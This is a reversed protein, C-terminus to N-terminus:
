HRLRSLEYKIRSRHENSVIPLYLLGVMALVIILGKIIMAKGDSMEINGLLLSLVSFYSIMTILRRWPIHMKFFKQSFYYILLFRFVFAVFTAKAAGLPGERPIWFIYLATILLVTFVTSIAIYKTEAAQLIGFRLYEMWCQLVYAAVIWPIVNIAGWYAPRSFEHIFHPSLVILGSAATLLIINSFFFVNGFLSSANHAKAYEFQQASWYTSFPVWVLSFLIFGFKYALAYVGVDGIGHFYQLFYRDGFTIYYMGISSLIIPLSFGILDRSQKKGFHIGTEPALWFLFLISIIASSIVSGLIIGWYGMDLYVIFIINLTLQLLLKFLNVQIYRVPRDKIRLYSFFVENVAGFILSVSLARLAVAFGEPAALLRSLYDASVFLVMVSVVNVAMVLLLASGIVKKKDAKNEADTYYKFIGVTVRSGLLITTLDILISILEILGYDEVTLYTMYVPLLLFSAM